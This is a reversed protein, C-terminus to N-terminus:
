AARMANIMGVVNVDVALDPNKEGLASLIGALHVIYNVGKNQVLNMYQNADTVDLKQFECPLDFMQEAVDSAIVNDKGLEEM